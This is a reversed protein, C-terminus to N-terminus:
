PMRTRADRLIAHVAKLEYYSVLEESSEERGIGSSKTGGFPTGWFHKATENIWIYGADLERATGLALDLDNTWISATLGYEVGNAAELMTDYDDWRMVSLVPGFIEDQAIRMEPLVDAFITPAVYYGDAPVGECQRDGAVVRAGDARGSEIHALVRDRQGASVLPGMDTGPEYAVGVRVQLMRTRIRDVFADYLTDHVLVRSMSGCSQGQCSTINTGIFAGAVAADVDTDPFVVMANKGGLELTVHKVGSTAARQQIKRGIATSGTFAIRRVDPHVVLADGAAAGGTVINLVGPPLSERAIEGIVLASLPTQEAAKLVVTNGSILAPLVGNIAFMAPHNFPIIRGVVGYPEYVTFHLNGPSSAEPVVDSTLGLALAPWDEIAALAISIDRSMAQVPNGADIADLTALEDARRRVGEAFRQFAARRGRVGIGQWDPQAAKAASVARDVDAASAEPAHTLLRGTSPDLTEFVGGTVPDAPEGGITLRFTRGEVYEAVPGANM